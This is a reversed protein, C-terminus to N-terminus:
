NKGIALFECFVNYSGQRYINKTVKVIEQNNTRALIWMWYSLINLVDKILWKMQSGTNMIMVDVLVLEM